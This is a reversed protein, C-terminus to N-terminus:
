AIRILFFSPAPCMAHMPSFHMTNQQFNQLFSVVQFVYACVPPYYKLPKRSPPQSSHQRRPHLATQYFKLSMFQQSLLIRQLTLMNKAFQLVKNKIYVTIMLFLIPPNSISENSDSYPGIISM